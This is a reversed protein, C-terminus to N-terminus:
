VFVIQDLGSGSRKFSASQLDAMTPRLDSQPPKPSCQALNHHVRAHFPGEHNIIIEAYNTREFGMFNSLSLSWLRYELHCEAYIRHLHPHITVEEEM